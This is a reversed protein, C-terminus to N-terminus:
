REKGSSSSRKGRVIQRNGQRGRYEGGISDGTREIGTGRFVGDMEQVRFVKPMSRDRGLNSQEFAERESAPERREETRQDM